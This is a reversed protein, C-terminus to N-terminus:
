APPAQGPEPSVASFIRIARAGEPRRAPDTREAYRHAVAALEEVLARSEAPTLWAVDSTMGASGRWPVDDAGASAYYERLRATELDLRILALEDSARVQVDDAVDPRLDYHGTSRWPKERGRAPAPEIFGYRALTRLHFSCNAVTQELAAACETATAEGVRALHDLLRLRVPHALARIREPGPTPAPGDHPETM